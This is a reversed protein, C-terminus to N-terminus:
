RSRRIRRALAPLSFWDDEGRTGWGAGTVVLDRPM